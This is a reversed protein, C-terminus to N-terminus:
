VQWMGMLWVAQIGEAALAKYESVPVDRLMMGPQNYKQHNHRQLPVTYM